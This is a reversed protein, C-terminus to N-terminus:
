IRGVSRGIKFGARRVLGAFNRSALVKYEQHRAQMLADNWPGAVSPHCMLVEGGVANRLWARVFALYLGDSANFGYVGLLHRNQRYGHRRALRSLASAGLCGILRSKFKVSWTLASGALQKPPGSARLWPKRSSYRQDLVDILADRIVPLQHVHQHGDIFAPMRGLTSEFLELQREIDRKLAARDLVRAYALLILRPLPVSVLSQVFNETFNLHLGVEVEVATQKLSISGSHWAPGDVMCSIASVSGRKVLDLAAQNIGDHMGFDDV